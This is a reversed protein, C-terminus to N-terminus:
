IRLTAALRKPFLLLDLAHEITPALVDAAAVTEAAAGEAQIVVIGLGAAAIMGRDNRGNGICAVREAGLADVYDRKAEAQGHQDLVTVTCPLGSVGARVGRFTDATVVHIALRTALARLRDPVGSILVGDTALTGNYDLVLHELRLPGVGPIEIEIM